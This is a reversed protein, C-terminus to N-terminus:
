TLEYIKETSFSFNGHYSDARIAPSVQRMHLAVYDALLRLLGFIEILKM